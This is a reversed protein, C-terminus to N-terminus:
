RLLRPSEKKRSEHTTLSEVAAGVGDLFPRNQGMLEERLKSSPALLPFRLGGRANLGTM